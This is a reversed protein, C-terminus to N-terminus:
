EEGADGIRQQGHNGPPPERLAQEFREASVPPSRQM